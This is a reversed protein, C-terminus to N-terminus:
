SWNQRQQRLYEQQLDKLNQELMKVEDYKEAQRAQKIYGRIINMQQVMPDDKDSYRISTEEPIWGSKKQSQVKAPQDSDRNSPHIQHKTTIERQEQQKREKEQAEASAQREDAIRQQIELKRAEQLKKYHEESPLAQLGIMNDQMFSTAMTRINKQMKLQTAPPPPDANTEHVWIRKSVSDISEYMKLIKNRYHQATYMNYTSEGCSLSEVMPIFEKLLMQANEVYSQLNEYMIVIPPKVNRQQIQQDRRELLKRCNNCTRIHAEGEPSMLSNLSSNSGTRKLFGVEMETQFAPNTLKKAFTHPLFHSCKDCMIGGCLRCHHRRRTLSFNRACDPCTQVYKDPMWPVVSKEFAKRKGTDTPSNSGTLKDLRIILKNTEVVFRDVRAGRTAKFVDTHSRIVGIEQPDWLSSDYGTKTLNASYSDTVSDSQDVYDHNEKEGLIKKKAKGFLGRLHQLVDKDENSHEEEFHDQLMSVTGLDKMCMPCLFGERVDSSTAM